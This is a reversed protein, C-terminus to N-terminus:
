KSEVKLTRGFPATVDSDIMLWIVPYPREQNPFPGYGDTMYILVPPIEDTYYMEDVHKFVPRFDTGGGGKTVEILDQIDSLRKPEGHISADAAIYYVEGFDELISNAETFVKDLQLRGMSGSTDAALYVNVREGKMGPYYYDHAMYMRNFRRWTFDTMGSAAESAFERLIDQWPVDPELFSELERKLESPLNGAEKSLLDKIRNNWIQNDVDSPKKSSKSEKGSIPSDPGVYTLAIKDAQDYYKKYLQETTKDLEDHEPLVLGSVDVSARDDAIDRVYQNCKKDGVYNWLAPHRDKRRGLHQLVLHFAEHLLVARVREPTAEAAMIPNWYLTTSNVGALVPTNQFKMDADYVRDLHMLMRAYPRYSNLLQVIGRSLKKIGAETKERDEM